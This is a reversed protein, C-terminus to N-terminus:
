IFDKLKEIDEEKLNALFGKVGIFDKIFQNQPNKVFEKPKGEQEIKGNNLVVVRDGLKFAEFIDHTVFVITKQENKQMEILQNQLKNKQLEDVAGFPEDMLIIDQSGAFARAVGVRQKEGGSLQSPYKRLYSEDLGMKLILDLAVKRKEQPSKGKLYMVYTINDEVTMHPFLGVQQIAYGISRRLAIEDIHQVNKGDVIVEGEDAVIMKNILKLITTKGSGSAGLLTVLQGKEITLNINKLVEVNDYKKTVNKLKIM